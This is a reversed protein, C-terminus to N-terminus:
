KKLDAHRVDSPTIRSLHGQEWAAAFSQPTQTYVTMLCVVGVLFAASITRMSKLYVSTRSVVVRDNHGSVGISRPPHRWWEISATARAPSPQFISGSNPSALSIPYCPSCGKLWQLPIRSLLLAIM